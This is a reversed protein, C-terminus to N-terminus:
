PFQILFLVLVSRDKRGQVTGAQLLCINLAKQPQLNEGSQPTSENHSLDTGCDMAGEDRLKKLGESTEAKGLAQDCDGANLPVCDSFNNGTLVHQRIM